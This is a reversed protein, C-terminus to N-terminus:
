KSLDRSGVLVNPLLQLLQGIQVLSDRLTLQNEVGPSIAFLHQSMNCLYHINLAYATCSVKYTRVGDKRHM